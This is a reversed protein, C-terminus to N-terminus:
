IFLFFLQQPPFLIPLPLNIQSSLFFFLKSFAQPVVTTLFVGPTESSSSYHSSHSHTSHSRTWQPFPSAVGYLFTPHFTLFSSIPVKLPSCSSPSVCSLIGSLQTWSAFTLCFCWLEMHEHLKNDKVQIHFVRLFSARSARPYQIWL